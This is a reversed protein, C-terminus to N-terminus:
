ARAWTYSPSKLNEQEALKKFTNLLTDEIFADTIFGKNALYLKGQGYAEDFKTPDQKNKEVVTDVFKKYADNLTKQNVERDKESFFCCFYPQRRIFTTIQM